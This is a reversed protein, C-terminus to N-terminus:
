ATKAFIHSGARLAECVDHRLPLGSISGSLWAVGLHLTAQLEEEDHVALGQLSTEHREDRSILSSSVHFHLWMTKCHLLLKHCSPWLFHRDTDVVQECSTFKSTRKESSTDIPCTPRPHNRSSVVHLWDRTRFTQEPSLQTMVELYKRVARTTLRLSNAGAEIGAGRCHVQPSSTSPVTQESRLAAKKPCCSM